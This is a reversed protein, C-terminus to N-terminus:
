VPNWMSKLFLHMKWIQNLKVLVVHTCKISMSTFLQNVALQLHSVFVIIFPNTKDNTDRNDSQYQDRRNSRVSLNEDPSLTSKSLRIIQVVTTTLPQHIVFRAWPQHTEIWLMTPMTLPLFQDGPPGSHYLDTTMNESQLCGLKLYRLEM